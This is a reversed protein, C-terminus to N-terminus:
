RKRNMEEWNPIKPKDIDKSPRDGKKRVYTPQLHGVEPYMNRYGDREPKVIKEKDGFLEIRLMDNDNIFDVFEALHIARDFGLYVIPKHWTVIENCCIARM